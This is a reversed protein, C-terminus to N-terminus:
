FLKNVNIIKCKDEVDCLNPNLINNQLLKTYVMNFLTFARLM